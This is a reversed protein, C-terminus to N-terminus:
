AKPLLMWVPLKSRRNRCDKSTSDLVNESYKQTTQSLEAEIEELRKKKEAPLEAGHQRFYALSEDMARRRVGTLARADETKSYTLVLDWLHDNLPIKAFFASVKPLMKNHAERLEPTNCVSDLHTVLGWSENLDRLADEYGLMVSEFSLKGRDQNIVKNLAREARSLAKTIDVEVAEPKLSSWLVHFSNELFPHPM